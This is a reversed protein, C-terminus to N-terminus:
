STCPLTHMRCAREEQRAACREPHVRSPFPFILTRLNESNMFYM